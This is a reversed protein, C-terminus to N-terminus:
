FIRYTEDNMTWGKGVVQPVLATRALGGILWGESAEARAVRRGPSECKQLDEDPLM